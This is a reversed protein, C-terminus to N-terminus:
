PNMVQAKCIIFGYGRHPNFSKFVESRTRISKKKPPSLTKTMIVVPLATARRAIETRHFYDACLRSELGRDLWLCCDHNSWWGQWWGGCASSIGTVDRWLCSDKRSIKAHFVMDLSTASGDFDGLGQRTGSALNKKPGQLEWRCCAPGAPVPLNLTRM